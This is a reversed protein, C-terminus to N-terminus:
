LYSNLLLLFFFVGYVSLALIPAPCCRGSLVPFPLGSPGPRDPPVPPETGRVKILCHPSVAWAGEAGLDEPLRAENLLALTASLSAIGWSGASLPPPLPTGKGPPQGRRRSRAPPSRRCHGGSRGQAQALLPCYPPCRAPLHQPRQAGGTRSLAAEGEAEGRVCGRSDGCVGQPVDGRGRVRRAGRWRLEAAGALVKESFPFGRGTASWGAPGQEGELGRQGVVHLGGQRGARGLLVQVQM